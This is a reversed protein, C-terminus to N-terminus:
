RQDRVVKFKQRAPTQDTVGGVTARVQFAYRGPKLKYKRPSTCPKFKAPAKNAQKGRRKLACEFTAAPDASSFRFKVKAKKRDTKVKRKPAKDITTEAEGGPPTPPEVGTIRAVRDPIDITTWLTNDPGTAIKRPGLVTDSAFGGLTSTAGEPTMRLLDKGQARAFWYAGDQGFVVGFPDTNELNTVQPSGGPTIRGVSQPSSVPNAYAVQGNPGAAVDQPGGGVVFPTTAAPNSTTTSLLRGTSIDTMWLLGDSGTAMGRPSLGTIPTIVFGTPNAPPIKVLKDTGALWINGDDGTTIGQGGALGTISTQDAGLPNGPPIRIVATAQAAWLNGDPGVTIGFAPQTMGGPEFKEASGDPKVRVISNQETTVWMNGDPGEVIENNSGVTQGAPLPFEGDVAPAAAAPSAILASGILGLGASILRGRM